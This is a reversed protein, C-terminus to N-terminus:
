NSRSGATSFFYCIICIKGFHKSPEIAGRYVDITYALTQFTYFSIGMPLLVDLKPVGYPVHLYGFLDAFTQSIFNFYKFSFLIGLNTLLSILLWRKRVSKESSVAIRHSVFYDVVTSIVLLIAYEVRWCMYFYYSAVLLLAWRWKYPFTFYLVVVLPFFWFFEFSNFLM